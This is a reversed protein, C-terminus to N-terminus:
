SRPDQDPRREILTGGDAGFAWVSEGDAAVAALSNDHRSDDRSRVVSWATGDFHETLTRLVAFGNRLQGDQSGVAWVDDHGVAVVGSLSSGDPAAPADVQRWRTGDFHLVYPTAQFGGITGVAWVDSPGGASVGALNGTGALRPLQM